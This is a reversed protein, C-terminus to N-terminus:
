IGCERYSNNLHGSLGSQRYLASLWHIGTYGKSYTFPSHLLCGADRHIHLCVLGFLCVLCSGELHFRNQKTNAFSSSEFTKSGRELLMEVLFKVCFVEITDIHMIIFLIQVHENYPDNLAYSHKYLVKFSM